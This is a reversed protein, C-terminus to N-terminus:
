EEEDRESDQLDTLDSIYYVAVMAIWDTTGALKKRLEAEAAAAISEAPTSIPIHVDETHWTQPEVRAVLMEVPRTTRKKFTDPRHPREVSALTDNNCEVCEITMRDPNKLEGEFAVILEHWLHNKLLDDYTAIM